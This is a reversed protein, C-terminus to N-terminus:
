EEIGKHRIFCCLHFLTPTFSHKPAIIELRLPNLLYSNNQSCTRGSTVTHAHAAHTSVSNITIGYARKVVTSFYSEIHNIM